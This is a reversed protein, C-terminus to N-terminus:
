IFQLLLILHISLYIFLYIFLPFNIMISTPYPVVRLNLAVLTLPLFFVFRLNSYQIKYVFTFVRNQDQEVQKFM